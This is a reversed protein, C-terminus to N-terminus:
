AAGRRRLVAGRVGYVATAAVLTVGVAAMEAVSATEVLVWVLAVCALLPVVPGGPARFPEGDTRVDRRRLAWAGAACGIYLLMASVNGLVVLREFTGTLALAIALAAFVLVAVHPTHHRPHVTALWRPAFGDRALAFLLRPGALGATSLMGFMSVVAGTLMITRGVPGIMLAAAAALPAVRDDALASGLVGQAVLQVAIYLVAVGAIALM